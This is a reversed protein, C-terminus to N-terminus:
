EEYLIDMKLYLQALLEADTLAGHLVRMSTDIEYIECLRNLTNKSLSHTKRAYELTCFTPVEPLAIEGRSFEQRLFRLDFPVNHIVWLDAILFEAINRALNDFRPKDALYHRTLGHVELAKSHSERGPNFWSHYIVGTRKGDVLEVAALEVIRDDTSLGTTETDIVLTRM